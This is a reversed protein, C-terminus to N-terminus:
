NPLSLKGDNEGPVRYIPPKGQRKELKSAWYMIELAEYVEEVKRGTRDSVEKPSMARKNRRLTEFILGEIPRGSSMEVRMETM